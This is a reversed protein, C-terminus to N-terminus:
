YNGSLVGLYCYDNSDDFFRFLFDGVLSIFNTSTSTSATSSFSISSFTTSSVTNPSSTITSLISLITSTSDETSDKKKIRFVSDLQHIEVANNSFVITEIKPCESEIFEDSIQGNFNMFGDVIQGDLNFHILFDKTCEEVKKPLLIENIKKDGYNFEGHIIINHEVESSFIYKLFLIILIQIMTAKKNM